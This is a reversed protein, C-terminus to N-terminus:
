LNYLNQRITFNEYKQRRREGFPLPESPPIPLCAPSLIRNGAITTRTRNGSRTCPRRKRRGKKTGQPFSKKQLRVVLFKSSDKATRIKESLKISGLVKRRHFFLKEPCTHDQGDHHRSTSFLGERHSFGIQIALDIRE